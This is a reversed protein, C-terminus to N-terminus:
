YSSDKIVIARYKQEGNSSKFTNIINLLKGTSILKSDFHINATALEFNIKVSNVGQQKKLEESLKETQKKSLQDGTIKVYLSDDAKNKLWKSPSYINVSRDQLPSEAFLNTTITLLFLVPLLKCFHTEM